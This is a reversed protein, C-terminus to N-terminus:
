GLLGEAKMAAQASPRAAVREVFAKLKPWATLQIGTFNAWNSAVFAYALVSVVGVAQRGLQGVGGGYLLGQIPEGATIRVSAVRRVSRPREARSSDRICMESGM